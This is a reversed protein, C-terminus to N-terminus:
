CRFKESVERTEACPLGPSFCSRCFPPRAAPTASPRLTDRSKELRAGLKGRSLRGLTEERQSSRTAPRLSRENGENLERAVSKGAVGISLSAWGRPILTAPPRLLAGIRKIRDCWRNRPIKQPNTEPATNRKWSGKERAFIMGGARKVFELSDWPHIVLPIYPWKASAPNRENRNNRLVPHSRSITRPLFYIQSSSIEFDYGNKCGRQQLM